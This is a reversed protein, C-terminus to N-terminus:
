PKPYKAKVAACAQYYEDLKTNDGQNSWYLADALDAVSPYEPQRDRQYQTAAAEAALEAAAADVLAQDLEVQNGDADFAGYTDSIKVVQPYARFIADHSFTIM